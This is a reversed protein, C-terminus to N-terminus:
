PPCPISRRFAPDDIHDPGLLDMRGLELRYLCRTFLGSPPVLQTHQGRYEADVADLAVAVPYAVASPMPVWGTNVAAVARQHERVWASLWPVLGIANRNTFTEM